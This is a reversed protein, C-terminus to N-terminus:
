EKPMHKMALLSQALAKPMLAIEVQKPILVRQTHFIMLM